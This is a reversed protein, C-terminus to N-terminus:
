FVINVQVSPAVYSAPFWFIAYDGNGAGFGFGIFASGGQAAQEASLERGILSDASIIELDALVKQGDKHKQQRAGFVKAHKQGKLTMHTIKGTADTHASHGKGMPHATNAQLKGVHAAGDLHQHDAYADGLLFCLAAGLLCLLGFLRVM